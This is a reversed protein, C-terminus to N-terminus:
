VLPRRTHRAIRHTRHGGAFGARRDAGRSGAGISEYAFPASATSGAHLALAWAWFQDAHGSATREAVFRINGATTTEKRIARFAATVAPDDPIRASRDEAAARAPYALEEKVPGTFTVAEVKYTGFRKQAREVFQRGIGTNDICARRLAPLALLEYVIREQEEFPTNQLDVRRRTFHVGGVKENLWISTLDKVRGIDVGLYLPNTTARLEAVTKAWPEGAPYKIGDILEYSLFASADDSPVCMYEQLFTEEDACGARVWDFYAAEDMHQREDNLPLKRQLKYLLGADLADQLTCRHLSIGKPNGKHRIELVLQNFYHATGRHTSFFRITGGWTIGPFAIGWLKRFDPHLGVEDLTRGGRKGAQADPNSSMSHCRRGTSYQLVHATNGEPDIVHEGLDKAANELVAAFNRCDDLFLRAMIADRSSVWQDYRAGEQSLERSIAYAESWTWGVQRSKEAGKKTAPDLVWKIQPNLLIPERGQAAPAPFIRCQGAFDAPVYAPRTSVPSRLRIGIAKAQDDTM